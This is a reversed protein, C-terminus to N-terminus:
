PETKTTDTTNVVTIQVRATGQQIMGLKEAAKQSVDILRGHKWPGRDTVRVVTSKGNEIHTVRVFTGFPLWRHACTEAHMDFLEGSSTKKGHFQKGYYSAMGTDATFQLLLRTSSDSVTTGKKQASNRVLAVLASDVVIAAPAANTQRAARRLSDAKMRVLMSEIRISDSRRWMSNWLATLSDARAVLQLSDTIVTNNTLPAQTHAVAGCCMCCYCFFMGIALRVVM